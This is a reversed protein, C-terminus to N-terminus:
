FLLGFRKLDDAIGIPILNLLLNVSFGAYCHSLCGPLTQGVNLFYPTLCDPAPGAIGTDPAQATDLKKSDDEVRAKWNTTCIAAGTGVM